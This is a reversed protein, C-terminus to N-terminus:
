PIIGFRSSVLVATDSTSRIQWHMQMKLILRNWTRMSQSQKQRGDSPTFYFLVHVAAEEKESAQMSCFDKSPKQVRSIPNEHWPTSLLTDLKSLSAMLSRNQIHLKRAKKKGSGNEERPALMISLLYLKRNLPLSPLLDSSSHRLRLPPLKSKPSM